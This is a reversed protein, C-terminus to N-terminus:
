FIQYILSINLFMERIYELVNGQIFSILRLRYVDKIHIYIGTEINGYKNQIIKPLNIPFGASVAHEIAAFEMEVVEAPMDDDVIKVVYRVGDESTLLYNLNEGALRELSGHLAYNDELCKLVTNETSEISM